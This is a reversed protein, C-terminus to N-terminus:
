GPKWELKLEESYENNIHFEIPIINFQEKIKELDMDGIDYSLTIHPLYKPYNYTASHEKMLFEHRKIAYPCNLMLVLARKKDFTEFIHLKEPYAKEDIEGAPTYDSLHKRSYLLTMHIDDKQIPNPLQLKKTLEVIVDNDVDSFRLGAYTGKEQKEELLDNLKM